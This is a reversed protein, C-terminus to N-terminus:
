KGFVKRDWYEPTVEKFNFINGMAEELDKFHETYNFNPNEDELVCYLEDIFVAENGEIECRLKLENASMKPIDHNSCNYLFVEVNTGDKMQIMAENRHESYSLFIDLEGSKELFILCSFLDKNVTGVNYADFFVKM